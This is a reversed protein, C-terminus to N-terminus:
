FVGRAAECPSKVAIHCKNKKVGYRKWNVWRHLYKISGWGRPFVAIPHIIFGKLEFSLICIEKSIAM